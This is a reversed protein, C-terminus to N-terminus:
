QLCCDAQPWRQSVGAASDVSDQRTLTVPRPCLPNIPDSCCAWTSSSFASLPLTFFGPPSCLLQLALGGVWSGCGGLLESARAGHCAQAWPCAPHPPPRTPGAEPLLVVFRPEPLKREPPM